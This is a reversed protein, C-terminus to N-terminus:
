VSKLYHNKVNSHCEDSSLYGIKCATELEMIFHVSDLNNSKRMFIQFDTLNTNQM